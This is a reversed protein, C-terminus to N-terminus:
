LIYDLFEEVTDFHTVLPLAWFITWRRKGITYVRRNKTLAMGVEIYAGAMDTDCLLVVADANFVGATDQVALAWQENETLDHEPNIKLEGLADFEDQNDTWDYSITHGAGRLTNMLKRAARYNRFRTAVYFRM